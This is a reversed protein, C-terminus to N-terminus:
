QVSRFALCEASDLLDHHFPPIFLREEKEMFVIEIGPTLTYFM